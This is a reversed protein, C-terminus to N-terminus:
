IKLKKAVVVYQLCIENNFSFSWCQITIDDLKKRKDNGFRKKVHSDDKIEFM